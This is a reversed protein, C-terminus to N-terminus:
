GLYEYFNDRHVVECRKPKYRELFSNAFRAKRKPNYKIEFAEYRDAQKKILDIEAKTKSRWFFLEDHLSQYHNQKYFESVIYNEWLQGIDNRAEILNFNNIIANRIGNDFFYVKRSTSIEKRPNTSLPNLRFIVYSDELLGIYKLITKNDVQLMSGLEHYSVENGVQYALAKLLKVILEPKRIDGYELIDKYLYSSTLELLRKTQYSNSSVIEPYSGLILRTELQQLSVMLNQHVELESWSIPFLEFTWKRGTLPENISSALNISSSGSIIVQKKLKMDLIMKATLGINEIRQAEDFVIYDVNEILRKINEKAIDDWLSRTYPDDGDIWLVRQEDDFLTHILTTKGVQRAGKIIIAKEFDIVARVSETINRNIM